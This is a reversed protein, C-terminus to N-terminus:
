LVKNLFLSIVTGKNLESSVQIKGSQKEIMEKCILLGLGTGQERETGVNSWIMNGNFLNKYSAEDMGVGADAVSILVANEQEVISVEVVSKRHSFKIANIIVNRLAIETMIIDCYMSISNSEKVILEIEKPESSITCFDVVHKVVDNIICQEKKVVFGDSQTQSWELLTQTLEYIKKSASNIIVATNQIKSLDASEMYKMQLDSSGLLSNFPSRIDHSVLRLLKDKTENSQKLLDYFHLMDNKFYSSIVYIILFTIAYILHLPQFEIYGNLQYMTVFKITFFSIPFISFMIKKRWGDFLFIAMVSITLLIHETQRNVDYELITLITTYIFFASTIMLINAKYHHKFQLYWSPVSVIFLMVIDSIALVYNQTVFNIVMFILLIGTVSFVIVNLLKVKRLELYPLKPDVGFNVLKKLLEGIFKFFNM